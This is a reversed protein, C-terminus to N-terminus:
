GYYTPDDFKTHYVGSLAADSLPTDNVCTVRQPPSSIIKLGNPCIYAAGEVGTGSKVTKAVDGSM